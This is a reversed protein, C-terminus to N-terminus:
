KTNGQTKLGEELSKKLSQYWLKYQTILKNKQHAAAAHYYAMIFLNKKMLLQSKLYHSFASDPNLTLSQNLYKETNLAVDSGQLNSYDSYGTLAKYNFPNLTLASKYGAVAGNFNSQSKMFDADKRRNNSITELILVVSLVLCVSSILVLGKGMQWNVKKEEYQVPYIQSLIIVTIIGAAFFYLGIDMLNYFFLVAVSTIYVAKEKYNDPVLKKRAMFLLIHILLLIIIGSEAAFQLFFNHAYISKAESGLTYLAVKNEYNGLGIGWLPHSEIMRTAQTWNSLRLKFPELEKFESFRLAITISLFLLLVTVVPILYKPKLIGSLLLYVLGGVTLYVIGGFSQTLVLNV